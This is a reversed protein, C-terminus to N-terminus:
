WARGHAAGVQQAFEKRGNQRTEARSLKGSSKGVKQRQRCRGRFLRKDTGIRHLGIHSDDSQSACRRIQFQILMCPDNM